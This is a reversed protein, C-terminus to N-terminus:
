SAARFDSPSSWAAAPMDDEPSMSVMRGYHGQFALTVTCMPGQRNKAVIVDVEGARPSERDYYDERHLLLVVDATAEIEGSERLDSLLPRKDSRAEPGRNVQVIVIVPIGFERGIARAGRALAGVAVQRSEAKPEALLGLYDIVLLQAPDGARDMGRLRGRIHALSVGDADDVRLRSCTLRDHARRIRDWDEDTLTGRTLRDLPVRATASIRRHTLAEASMELSSFLVPADCHDAVHDAINLGIVSKGVSTRAGIVILERPRLGGIVADLDAYGTPLGPDAGAQLRDLVETVIEAQSRLGAGEPVSTADDVIGRIQDFHVGPDFGPGSAVQLASLLASRLNRQEWAAYVRPAHAQVSGWSQMLTHLFVGGTGADPAGVKTLLGGRALEALVSAPDVTRGEDLMGLVAGFVVQHSGDGFHEAKLVAAAEVAEAPFQVVSGLVAREAAIVEESLAAGDLGDLATM